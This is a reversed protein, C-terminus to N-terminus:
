RRTLRSASIWQWLWTTTSYRAWPPFAVLAPELRVSRETSRTSSSRATSVRGMLPVRGRPRPGICSSASPRSSVSLSFSRASFTIITSRSRLSRERTQRGPLTWTPGKGSSSTRGSSLAQSVEGLAKLQELAQTLERTREAVKQELNAYSAQLQTAMSNFQDALMELEDGTRVEIRQDLAGAGIQAAGAQLAQIPRAMSRALILCTVVALGLGLALLALTSLISDYLPSFAESAPQEVFVSWGLPDISSSGTFVSEGRQDRGIGAELVEAGSGRVASIAAQVQPLRSLDTKQLVLSIDDHAILIGRPDVVYAYGKEGAKVQSVVDWVLKLNLEAATVGAGPGQWKMSLTMYPESENRFYVPGFYVNGTMAGLFKPEASHDKQSGVEDVNLRSVRLQEKGTADLHSVETVSPVQHLLWLFDLRRQEDAQEQAMFIPHSVWRIQGQIERIFHEIRLAATAAKEKQLRVIAARNDRYSIYLEILGRFILMSGIVTVFVFVYKRFLTRRVRM